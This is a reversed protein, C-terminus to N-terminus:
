GFNKAIWHERLRHCRHNWCADPWALGSSGSRITDVHTLAWSDTEGQNKGKRPPLLMTFGWHKLGWGRRLIVKLSWCSVRWQSPVSPNARLEWSNGSGDSGVLSPNSRWCYFNAKYIYVWSMFTSQGPIKPHILQMVPPEIQHANQSDPNPDHRGRSCILYHWILTKELLPESFVFECFPVLGGCSVTDDSCSVGSSAFGTALNALPYILTCGVLREGTRPTRFDLLTWCGRIQYLELSSWIAHAPLCAPDGDSSFGSGGPGFNFRSDWRGHLSRLNLIPNGWIM